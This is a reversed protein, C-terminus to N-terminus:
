LDMGMGMLVARYDAADVVLVNTAQEPLHMVGDTTLMPTLYAGDM